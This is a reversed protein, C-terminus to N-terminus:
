QEYLWSYFMRFIEINFYSLKEPSNHEFDMYADIIDNAVYLFKKPTKRLKWEVSCGGINENYNKINNNKNEIVQKEKKGYKKAYYIYNNNTYLLKENSLKLKKKLNFMMDTLEKQSYPREPDCFESDLIYKDKETEM